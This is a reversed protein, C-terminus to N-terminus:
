YAPVIRRLILECTAQWQAQAAATGVSQWRNTATVVLRKQPVVVIFQGGWGTAMAFRAGAAQGTWWGYGYGSIGPMANTSIKTTTSEQIWSSSVVQNGNFRGNALVLSGLTMMDRPSLRLGAGGNFYGLDDAEWECPGIGLPTFLAARAYDSTSQGCNRSLIRSLVYYNPSYYNFQAGPTAVLPLDWVYTLQDPAAAWQNYLSPNALENGGLGSSMTLLQDLTIPIKAPDLPALPGLLDGLSQDLSRLQGRELAAGVLISVVSKTVSRVDQAIDAGGGNFHEQREIVGDRAIVLSTINPQQRALDFASDVLATNVTEIQAPPDQSGGCGLIGCFAALLSLCKLFCRSPFSM